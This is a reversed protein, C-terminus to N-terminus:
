AGPATAAGRALGESGDWVAASPARPYAPLSPLHPPRRPAPHPAAPLPRPADTLGDTRGHAASRGRASAHVKWSSRWCSHAPPTSASGSPQRAPGRPSPPDGPPPAPRIGTGRSPAARASAGSRGPRASFPPTPFAPDLAPANRPCHHRSTPKPSGPSSPPGAPNPARRPSAGATQRAARLSPLFPPFPLPERPIQRLAAWPSSSAAAPRCLQSGQTGCESKLQGSQVM